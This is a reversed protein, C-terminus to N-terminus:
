PCLLVAAGTARILRQSLQKSTDDMAGADSFRRSLVVLDFGSSDFVDLLKQQDNAAILMTRLEIGAQEAQRSYMQVLRELWGRQWEYDEALSSPEFKDQLVGYIGVLRCFTAAKRTCNGYTGGQM